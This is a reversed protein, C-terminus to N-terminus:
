KTIVLKGKEVLTGCHVIYTYVGSPLDQVYIVEQGQNGTLNINFVTIGIINKLTFMANDSNEPLTYDVATWATAPNPSVTVNFGLSENMETSAQITTGKNETSTPLEPCIARPMESDSIEALLSQAMLQSSGSGNEAIDTVLGIETETMQMVNRESEYLTRYLGLLQMYCSHDNLENGELNYLDPLITALAFANDFDNQGIYSAIIMRDTVINNLAGLWQRLEDANMITDNLNSRVIDGAALNLEHSYETLQAILATRATTGSAIQRLLEVMYEPLPNDKSELYNILTDKKLEDPNASLIEFLTANSFVDDRDAATTLVERSLYPSHELLQSRLKWSDSPTASVINLVETATSGGDIRSDYISQLAQYVNNASNYKETLEVKEATSKMVNQNGYHSECNNSVGTSIPNLHFTKSSSPMEDSNGRYYYYDILNSGDNYFHYLSGSFTNGAPNSLSGQLTGIDGTGSSKLVCFDNVNNVNNNCTYTLGAVVQSRSNTPSFNNGVAVNGYTLYKFENLYIDNVGRSNFIGIGYTINEPMLTPRFTNEEISFGTVGSAYIGYNCLGKNSIFFKNQLITAYGTNTAHIGYVNDIFNSNRVMFSYATSGNNTTYIGYTFGSFSSHIINAEPCPIIADDCYSDVSFGAQYAAIGCNTQSVGLITRNTSFTCGRFTLGWVNRLKVHQYFTTTGLYDEDIIFSCNRFSGSYAVEAGTVPNHNVYYMAEIAKANNRFVADTAHIIGGTTNSNGPHWLAVACKANEITAGNQMKIYGQRYNGNVINQHTTRDGWVEIGQWLRTELLDTGVTAGDIILRGGPKVIIKADPHMVLHCTLTLTAGNEIILDQYLKMDFDWLQEDTIVLPLDSKECTVYKRVSTFSLARHMKGAQMPSIYYSDKNGGMLNNTIGDGNVAYADADYDCTHSCNSVDPQTVIFVDRIFDPNDQNCSVNYTHFLTLNHGFEHALLIANAWDGQEPWCFDAIILNQTFDVQNPMNTAAWHHIYDPDGMIFVNIANMREPYNDQIYAEVIKCESYTDYNDWWYSNKYYYIREEGPEGISFRIRSDYNPLETVWSIPDSPARSSYFNNIWEFIQVFRQRTNESEEFNGTGDDKQIININVNITKIPPVHLPFLSDMDPIHSNINYYYTWLGTDVPMCNGSHLPIDLQHLYFTDTSASRMLCPFDNQANTLIVCLIFSCSFLFKKM